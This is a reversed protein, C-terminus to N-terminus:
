CLNRNVFVPKQERVHVDSRQVTKLEETSCVVVWELCWTLIPSLTWSVLQFWYSTVPRDDNGWSAKYSKKPNLAEAQYLCAVIM